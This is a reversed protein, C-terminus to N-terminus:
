QHCSVAQGPAAALVPSIFPIGLNLGRLVLLVAMGAVVFPMAKKWHQRVSLRIRWGFVGLALMAPLTGAGFFFMLLVSHWVGPASVAGAMALYVMGCPLFGNALGPLLYALPKRAQLFGGTRQQVKWYLTQLWGPQIASGSLLSRLLLLLMVAGLLVSFWQQFGALYIGRGFLGLLLGLLSYVIIRGTNYLLMAWVQGARGLHGVPLSLALPGCMGICHLSSLLGLSFGALALQWM